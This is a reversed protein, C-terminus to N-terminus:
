QSKSPFQMLCTSQKEYYLLKQLATEALGDAHSIKGDIYEEEVGKNLPKYNKKYLDNIVKM